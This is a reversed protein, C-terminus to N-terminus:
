LHVGKQLCTACLGAADKSRVFTNGFQVIASRMTEHMTSVYQEIYSEMEEMPLDHVEPLAELIDLDNHIAHAICADISM